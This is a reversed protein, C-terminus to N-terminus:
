LLLRCVLYALSQLESTHEESRYPRTGLCDLALQLNPRAIREAEFRDILTLASQRRKAEESAGPDGLKRVAVLRPAVQQHGDILLDSSRRTPFPHLSRSPAARSV